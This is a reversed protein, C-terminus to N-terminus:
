CVKQSERRTGPILCALLRPARAQNQSTSPYITAAEPLSAAYTGPHLTAFSYLERAHRLAEAAYSPDSAKLAQAWVM